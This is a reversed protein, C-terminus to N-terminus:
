GIAKANVPLGRLIMAFRLSPKVRRSRDVGLADGVAEIIRDNPQQPVIWDIKGLAFGTATLANKAVSVM